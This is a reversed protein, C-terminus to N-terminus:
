LPGHTLTLNSGDWLCEEWDGFICDPYIGAISVSMQMMPESFRVIIVSESPVNTGNPSCSQVTPFTIDIAFEVVSLTRHGAYDTATFVIVHAGQEPSWEQDFLSGNEVVANQDDLAVSINAVGIFNDNADAWIMVRNGYTQSAIPSHITLTPAVTDIAVYTMKQEEVAGANDISSYYVNYGGDDSLVIPDKYPIWEGGGIMYHTVNIGEGGRDMATLTVVVPGVYCGNDGLEGELHITTEPVTDPNSHIRFEASCSWTDPNSEDFIRIRYANSPIVNPVHWTFTGTNDIFRAITAAM